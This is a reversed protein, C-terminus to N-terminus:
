QNHKSTSPQNTQQNIQQSTINAPRFTSSNETIQIQTKKKVAPAFFLIKLHLVIDSLFHVVTIKNLKSFSYLFCTEQKSEDWHYCKYGKERKRHQFSAVAQEIAVVSFQFTTIVQNPRSSQHGHRYSGTRAEGSPPRLQQCSLFRDPNEEAQFYNTEPSGGSRCKM